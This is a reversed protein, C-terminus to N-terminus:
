ACPPCHWGQWGWQAGEWRQVPDRGEWDLVQIAGARDMRGKCTLPHCQTDGGPSMTPSLPQLPLACHQPVALLHSHISLSQTSLCVAGRGPVPIVPIRIHAAPSGTQRVRAGLGMRCGGGTLLLSMLGTGPTLPMQLFVLFFCRLFLLSGSTARHAGKAMSSPFSLCPQQQWEHPHSEWPIQRLTKPHHGSSRQVM